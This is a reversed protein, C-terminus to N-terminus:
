TFGTNGTSGTPGTPGTPGTQGTPGTFGTNGTFGTLGTPGTPGTVTSPAGTSGTAGTAGTHGTPGTAGTNTATGPVGQAGTAGTPGTPGTPGTAGTANHHHHHRERHRRCKDLFILRSAVVCGPQDYVSIILRPECHFLHDSPIWVANWSIHEGNRDSVVVKCTTWSCEIESIHRTNSVCDDITQPFNSTFGIQFQTNPCPTSIFYKILHIEDNCQCNEDYDVLVKWSM